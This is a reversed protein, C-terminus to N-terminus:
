SGREVIQADYAARIKSGDVRYGFLVPLELAYLQDIEELSFGEATKDAVFEAIASEIVSLRARVADRIAIGDRTRPTQSAVTIPNTLFSMPPQEPAAEPVVPEPEPKPTRRAM